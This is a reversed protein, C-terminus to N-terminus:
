CYNIEPVLRKSVLVFHVFYYKFKKNSMETKNESFQRNEYCQCNM